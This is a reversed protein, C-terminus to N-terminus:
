DILSLRSVAEAPSIILTNKWQKMHLLHNKDGTILYDAKCEQALELLFNDKSDTCVSVKEQPIVYIAYSLLSRLIEIVDPGVDFKYILKEEIERQLSSSMYFTCVNREIAKLLVAPKGGYLIGSIFVNTDLIINHM